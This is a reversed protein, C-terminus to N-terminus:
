ISTPPQRAASRDDPHRDAELATESRAQQGRLTDSPKTGYADRYHQAFRSPSAFGWRYAVDTVTLGDAAEQLDQHACDLRVRRLYAMPTTGAQRRFALQVARPTVYAARAIDQLTIDLDPNAEIFAVARRLTGPRSDPGDDRTPTTVATNPFTALATAAILRAAAGVVLPAAAADADDLLGDVFRCVARWRQATGKMPTYSLFEVPASEHDPDTNTMENLLSIPVTTTLVRIDHTSSAFDASPHNAIFLDAPGYRYVNEGHEIEFTGELLTDFVVYDDGTVMYSVDGPARARGLIIPGAQIMSITLASGVPNPQDVTVRWGYTDDLFDTAESMDTTAFEFRNPPIFPM